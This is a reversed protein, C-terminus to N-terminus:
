LYVLQQTKFSKSDLDDGIQFSYRYAFERRKAGFYLECYQIRNQIWHLIM